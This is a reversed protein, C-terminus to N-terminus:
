VSCNESPLAPLTDGGALILNKIARWDRTPDQAKLLAAVGTVQPAAMSTGSFISYTNNPTTSLIDLGPASLHVTHRGTNSFTVIDDTRTSAAVSIVNPLFINAPYTPFLDNDSFDNGAAAVFLIGDQMQDNVADQLAQSIGGGGWSNNSVVVNVGSDKMQKIFSLCALAHFVDGFGQSNIFKCPLIQVHWNVGAVGVGNNGVAGIIGSVHTGHSNDDFPDCSSDIVNLGHTGAPCQVVIGNISTTTFGNPSSWVNAALDPHNYDIGTDIVAVVVSASGTSIGWAQTAHIDAGVTGGNQGTNQMNWQTSFFPDNPIDSARVIYDPEAYLVAPNKQYVRIAEHVSLYKPLQVVQLRDVVAPESLVKSGMGQHAAQMASKSTGPRFRVLVRDSVYKPGHSLDVPGQQLVAARRQEPRPGTQGLASWCAVVTVLLFWGLTKCPLREVCFSIGESLQSSFGIPKVCGGQATTERYCVM